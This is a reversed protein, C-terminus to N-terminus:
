EDTVASAAKVLEAQEYELYSLHQLKDAAEAFNEFFHIRPHPTKRKRGGQAIEHIFAHEIIRGKNAFLLKALAWDGQGSDGFFLFRYEPFLEAYSTLTRAKQEAMRRHGLLGPLSGSLVTAEKWGLHRLQRHTLREMMSLALEPRATLFIPPLATLQGYLEVVGPYVTGTPYRQDKLSSYITDDIDSVVRLTRPGERAHTQFHKVVDFRLAPSDIDATLIALLDHGLSCTDVKLKLQTLREAVESLFLNRIVTEERYDTHGRALHWIVEAKLDITLSSAHRELLKLFEPRSNRGWSGAELGAFVEKLSVAELAESFHEGSLGRLPELLCGDGDKLATSLLKAPSDETM